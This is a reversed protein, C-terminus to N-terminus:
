SRDVDLECSCVPEPTPLEKRERARETRLRSFGLGLDYEMDLYQLGFAGGGVLQRSLADGEAFGIEVGVLGDVNV